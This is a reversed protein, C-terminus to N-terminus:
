VTIPLDPFYKDACEPVNEWFPDCIRILKASEAKLEVM